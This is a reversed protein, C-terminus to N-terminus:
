GECKGIRIQREVRQRFKQQYTREIDQYRQISEIFKKKLAAHQTKRMPLDGSNASLRANSLELAILISPHSFHFRSSSKKGKIRDKTENNLRATENVVSELRQANQHMQEESINVLAAGHMEEIDSINAHILRNLEKIEEM